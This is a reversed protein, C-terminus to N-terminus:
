GGGSGKLQQEMQEHMRKRFDDRSRLWGCVLAFTIVVFIVVDSAGAAPSRGRDAAVRGLLVPLLGLVALAPPLATRFALRPGAAEPPLLMQNEFPDPAGKITSVVGAMAAGLAAPVVAVGAVAVAETSPDVLVGVAGAVAAVLLLIGVVAPVHKLHLTGNTEPVADRRTPHDVEQALPEVAELGAVYLAAGAVIILLTTGDYVGRMALGVVVAALVLRGVRALPWRLVGRWGRTWVPFRDHGRARIRIWPRVRPLELALQRRLVIVTRVDQLTAAFRLQGVLTSRREASELSVRDLRLFGFVLM